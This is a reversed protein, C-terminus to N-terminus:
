CSLTHYAGISMSHQLIALPTLTYTGARFCTELDRVVLSAIYTGLHVARVSTWLNLFAWVEGSVACDSM